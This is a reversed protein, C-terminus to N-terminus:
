VVSRSSLPPTFQWRHEGQAYLRSCSLAITLLCVVLVGDRFTGQKSAMSGAGILRGGGGQALLQMAAYKYCFFTGKININLLRDLEATPAAHTFQMLLPSKWRYQFSSASEHLIRNVSVRANAIM